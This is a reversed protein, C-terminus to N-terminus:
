TYMYVYMCMNSQENEVTHMCIDTNVYIYIVISYVMPSASRNLFNCPIEGHDKM